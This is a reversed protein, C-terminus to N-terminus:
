GCEAGYFTYVGDTDNYVSDITTPSAGGSTFETLENLKDATISDLVDKNDHTHSSGSNSIQQNVYNKIEAKDAETWYDVGKQPTNGKDGKDGKLAPVEIINGNGDKIKLIAM